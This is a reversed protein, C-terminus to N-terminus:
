SKEGTKARVTKLNEELNKYNISNKGFTKECIRLSEEFLDGARKYDKEEYFFIALNNLAASYLSHEKGVTGAFIELAEKTCRKAEERKGTLKYPHVLNNLTTGYELRYDPLKELIELSREHLELAKEYEKIDQYLLGLNNCVSAYLYGNEGNASYIERSKKYLDLAKDYERMFRYLEALNLICTAYEKNNTGYKKRILLESELLYKEAESYDGVYRLIGGLDNLITIVENSEAGYNQRAALLLKRYVPIQELIKGQKKLELIKETLSELSIEM